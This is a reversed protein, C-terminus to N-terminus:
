HKLKCNLIYTLHTQLPYLRHQMLTHMIFLCVTFHRQAAYLNSVHHVCCVVDLLYLLRSMDVVCLM